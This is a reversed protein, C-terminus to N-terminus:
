LGHEALIAPISQREGREVARAFAAEDLQPRVVLDRVVLHHVFNATDHFLRGGSAGILEAAREPEGQCAAAYALAFVCDVDARRGEAEARQRARRLQPLYDRGEGIQTLAHCFMTLWNEQIGSSRLNDLQADMCWRLQAGDQDVLANVWAAWLCIYREYTDSTTTRLAEIESALGTRRGAALLAVVRYARALRELAPKGIQRARDRASELGAVALEPRPGPLSRYISAIVMAAPDDAQAGLALAAKAADVMLRADGSGVGLDAEVIHLWLRDRVALDHGRLDAVWRLGEAYSVANRWLLSVGLMIDTADSVAGAAISAQYALRVNDCDVGNRAALSTSWWRRRRPGAIV